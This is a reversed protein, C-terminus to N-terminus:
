MCSKYDVKKLIIEMAEPLDQKVALHLLNNGKEDKGMCGCQSEM